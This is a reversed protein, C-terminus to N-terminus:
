SVLLANILEESYYFLLGCSLIISKICKADLSDMLKLPLLYFFSGLPIANGYYDLQNWTLIDSGFKGLLRKAFDFYIM